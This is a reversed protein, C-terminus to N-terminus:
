WTVNKTLFFNAAELYSTHDFLTSVSAKGNNKLNNLYKFSSM